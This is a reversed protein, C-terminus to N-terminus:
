IGNAYSARLNLLLHLYFVILTLTPSFSLSWLDVCSQVSLQNRQFCHLSVFRFSANLLCVCVCVMYQFSRFTIHTCVDYSIDSRCAVLIQWEIWNVVKQPMNWHFFCKVGSKREMRHLLNKQQQEGKRQWEDRTSSVSGSLRMNKCMKCHWQWPMNWM